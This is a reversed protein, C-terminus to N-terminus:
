VAGDGGWLKLADAEHTSERDPFQLKLVVGRGDPLEAPLVLSVSSDAFPEGLNRLDWLM